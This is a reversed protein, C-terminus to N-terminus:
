SPNIPKSKWMVMGINNNKKNKVGVTYSYITLYGYAGYLLGINLYLIVPRFCYSLCYYGLPFQPFPIIRGGEKFRRYVGFSGNQMVLM